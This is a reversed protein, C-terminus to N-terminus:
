LRRASTSAVLQRAIGRFSGGLQGEAVLQGDGTALEDLFKQDAGSVGRAFIEVRRQVLQQRAALADPRSNPAGDTLVVAVHRSDDGTLQSNVARLGSALDTGGGATLMEVARRTAVSTSGIPAVTNASSGFSIVAVREGAGAQELEDIFGICAAKAEDLKTGQMSGSVDIVLAVFLDAAAHTSPEEDTWRLDRDDRDVSPPPLPRGAVAAAVEVVGDENYSYSVEVRVTSGPKGEIGSFSWCGLPDNDLPRDAAGQLMYVKMAGEEGSPPLDLEHSKTAAAPLPANRELMVQNVYRAGDAAVVVFGLAHATVDRIRTGIARSLGAAVAAGSSIQTAYLAAGTVVAEDANVGAIPTQGTVRTLIDACPPMRTSGGALLVRDVKDAGGIDALVRGVLEETRDFLPQARAWFTPREVEVRHVRGGAHLTVATRDLRSLAHKAERAREQLEALVSPDDRPDDGIDAIVQDAVLDVILDDWDKGGLRHDGATALVEAGDVEFRVVSVDFTGGGLDYVLVTKDPGVQTRSAICAATPEHLLAIIDLDSKAGAELTARRADDGFYAPITVVAQTPRGELQPAADDLLARLVEASLDSPTWSRGGLDVRWQTGMSRKFLQFVSDPELPAMRGGAEGVTTATDPAVHVISRLRPGGDRTSCV